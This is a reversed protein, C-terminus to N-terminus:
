RRSRAKRPGPGKGGTAPPRGASVKLLTHLAEIVKRRGEPTLPLLAAHAAKLASFEPLESLEKMGAM